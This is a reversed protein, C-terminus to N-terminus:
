RFGIVAFCDNVGSIGSADGIAQNLTIAAAIGNLFQLGSMMPPGNSIALNSGAGSANGPIEFQYSATMGTGSFGTTPGLVVDYFKLFRQQASNNGASFFMLQGSQPSIQWVTTAGATSNPTTLMFGSIGNSPGLAM